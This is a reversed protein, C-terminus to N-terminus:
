EETGAHGRVIEVPESQPNGDADQFEITVVPHAGRHWRTYESLPVTIEATVLVSQHENVSVGSISGLINHGADSQRFSVNGDTVDNESYNFVRIALTVRVTAGQNTSDKIQCIGAFDRGNKGAAIGAFSLILLISLALPGRHLRAHKSQNRRAEVPIKIM